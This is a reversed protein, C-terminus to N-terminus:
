DSGRNSHRDSYRGDSAKETPDRHDEKARKARIEDNKKKQAASLEPMKDGKTLVGDGHKAKLKALVYNFAKDEGEGVLKPGGAKKEAAAKENPNENNRALNRMKTKKQAAKHAKPDIDFSEHHADHPMFNVYKEHEKQKDTKFKDKRLDHLKETTKDMEAKKAPRKKDSIVKKVMKMIGERHLFPHFNSGHKKRLKLEKELSALEKADRDRKEKSKIKTNADLVASAEGIVKQIQLANKRKKENIKDIDKEPKNSEVMEGEPEYGATIDAGGGARVAQLKKLLVQRKIMGARKEKSKIQPDENTGSTDKKDDVEAVELIQGGMKAVAEKFTPNIVVKNDVKTEKVKKAAKTETTPEDIVEILDQRWNSYKSM